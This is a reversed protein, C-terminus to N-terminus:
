EAVEDDDRIEPIEFTLKKQYYNIILKRECFPCSLETDILVKTRGFSTGCNPCTLLISELKKRSM